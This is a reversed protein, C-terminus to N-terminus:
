KERQKAGSIFTVDNGFLCQLQECIRNAACAPRRFRIELQTLVCHAGRRGCFEGACVNQGSRETVRIEKKGKQVTNGEFSGTM